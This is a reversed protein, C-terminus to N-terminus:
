LIYFDTGHEAPGLGLAPDPYPGSDDRKSDYCGSLTTTTYFNMGEPVHWVGRNQKKKKEIERRRAAVTKCGDLRDKENSTPINELIFECAQDFTDFLKRGRNENSKRRRKGPGQLLATPIKDVVTRLTPVGGEQEVAHAAKALLRTFDEYQEAKDRFQRTCYIKCASYGIWNGMNGKGRGMMQSICEESVCDCPM